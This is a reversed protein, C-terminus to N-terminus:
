LAGMMAMAQAYAAQVPAPTGQGSIRPEYLAREIEERFTLISGSVGVAAAALGIGLGAILHLNRFFSRSTMEWLALL